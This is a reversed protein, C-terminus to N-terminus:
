ETFARYTRTPTKHKENLDDRLNIADHHSNFYNFIRVTESKVSEDGNEDVISEDKVVYSIM